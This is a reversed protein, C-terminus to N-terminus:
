MDVNHVTNNLKMNVDYTTISLKMNVVYVRIKLPVIITCPTGICSCIGCMIHEASLNRTEQLSTLNLKMNVDHTTSKLRDISYETSNAGM